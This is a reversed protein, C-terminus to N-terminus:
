GVGRALYDLDGSVKALPLSQSILPRSLLRVTRASLDAAATVWFM